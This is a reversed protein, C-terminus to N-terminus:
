IVADGKWTPFDVNSLRAIRILGPDLLVVAVDPKVVLSTLQPWIFCWSQKIVGIDQGLCVCM